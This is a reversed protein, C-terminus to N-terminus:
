ILAIPPSLEPKPPHGTLAPEAAASHIQPWVEPSWTMAVLGLVQVAACTKACDASKAKGSDHHAVTSDGAAIDDAALMATANAASSGCDQIAQGAVPQAWAQVWPRGAFAVVMLGILLWKFPRARM